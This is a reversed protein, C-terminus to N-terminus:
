KVFTLVAPMISFTGLPEHSLLGPSRYRVQFTSGNAFKYFPFGAPLSPFDPRADLLAKRNTTPSFAELWLPRLVGFPLPPWVVLRSCLTPFQVVPRYRLSRWPQPCVSGPRLLLLGFPNSALSQLATFFCAPLKSREITARYRAATPPSRFATEFQRSLDPLAQM